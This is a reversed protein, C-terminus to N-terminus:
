MLLSVPNALAMLMSMPPGLASTLRIRLLTVDIVLSPSIPGKGSGIEM